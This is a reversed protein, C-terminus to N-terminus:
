LIIEIYIYINMEEDYLYETHDDILEAFIAEKKNKKKKKTEFL